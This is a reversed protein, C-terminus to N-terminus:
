PGKSVADQQLQPLLPTGTTAPGMDAAHAKQWGHLMEAVYYTARTLMQASTLRKLAALTCM